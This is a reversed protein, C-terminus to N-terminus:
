LTEQKSQVLIAEYLDPEQGLLKTIIYSCSFRETRQNIDNRYEIIVTLELAREFGGVHASLFERPYYVIFSEFEHQPLITISNESAPVPSPFSNDRSYTGKSGKLGFVKCKITVNNAAYTGFNKIVASIKFVDALGTIAKGSAKIVKVEKVACIPQNLIKTASAQSEAAKSYKEMATSQKKMERLTSEMSKKGQIYSDGAVKATTAMSSAIEGAKDILRTTQKTAEDSACKFIVVNGITALAIIGTLVTM